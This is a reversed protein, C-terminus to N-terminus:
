FIWARCRSNLRIYAARIRIYFIRFGTAPKLIKRKM